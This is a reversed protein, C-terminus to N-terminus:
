EDVIAKLGEIDHLTIHSGRVSLMKRAALQSLIRSLTEPKISLHSAIISKPTDLHIESSLIAGDPLQDLLYTVLRYTAGHLTLNNIDDIRAHLRRSMGALLKFCTEISEKLIESFVSIDFSYLESRFIAEANVPYRGEEMFLLAEAFTDGEHMVELVKENGDESVRFLKIHGTKVYFFREALQKHMFVSQHADLHITCASKIIQKLQRDNLSEFLYIQRVENLNLQKGPM